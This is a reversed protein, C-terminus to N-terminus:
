KELLNTNTNTTAIPEPHYKHLRRMTENYSEVGQEISYRLPYLKAYYQPIWIEFPGDNTGSFKETDSEGAIVFIRLRGERFDNDARYGAGVVALMDTTKEWYYNQLFAYCLFGLSTLLAVSLIAIVIKFKKLSNM